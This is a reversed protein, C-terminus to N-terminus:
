PRAYPPMTPSRRAAPSPMPRATKPTKCRFASRRWPRTSRMWSRPAACILDPVCIWARFDPRARLNMEAWHPSRRRTRRRALESQAIAARGSAARRLPEIPAGGHHQLWRRAVPRWIPSEIWAFREADLDSALVRDVSALLEDASVCGFLGADNRSDGIGIWFPGRSRPRRLRRRRRASHRIRLNRPPRAAGRARRGVARPDRSGGRERDGGPAM